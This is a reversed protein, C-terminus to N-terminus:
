KLVIPNSATGAQGTSSMPAKGKLYRNSINNLIALNAEKTMNEAGLSDLWTKLEVNSNLQTASMGTSEKVANLLQLRVSKLEDRKSQVETGAARAAFQGVTGTGLSTVMNALAGKSTTTMGGKDAIDKVLTKAVEVTDALGQQGEAKMNAKEEAKLVAASPGKLSAALQALQTKSDIMMRAITEKSEGAVRAAEIKADAAAQAMTLQQQRQAARDMSAQLTPLITKADGYKTVVKLYDEQTANPGLTALEKTMADEKAASLTLRQEEIAAKNAQSTQLRAQRAQDMVQMAQQGFGQQGLTQALTALGEPTTTDAQKLINQLAAAKAMQPDQAGLMGGVGRAVNGVGQYISYNAQQYPDAMSAYDMAQKNAAAERQALLSEPTIGFLSNVIEAM